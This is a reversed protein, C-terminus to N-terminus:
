ICLMILAIFGHCLHDKVEQLEYAALNHGLLATFCVVRYSYCAPRPSSDWPHTGCSLLWTCHSYPCDSLLPRLPNLYVSCVERSSAPLAPPFSICKCRLPCFVHLQKLYSSSILFCVLLLRAHTFYYAVSRASPWALTEVYCLFFSAKNTAASLKPFQTVVKSSHPLSLSKVYSSFSCFM